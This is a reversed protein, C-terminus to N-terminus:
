ERSSFGTGAGFYPRLKKAPKALYYQLQLPVELTTVNVKRSYPYVTPGLYTFQSQTFDTESAALNIGTEVAFHSGAYFRLFMGIPHNVPNGYYGGFGPREVSKFVGTQLGIAAVPNNSIKPQSIEQAYVRTFALLCAVPLLAKFLSRM